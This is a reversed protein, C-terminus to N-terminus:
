QTVVGKTGEWLSAQLNGKCCFTQGSFDPHALFLKTSGRPKEYLILVPFHLM